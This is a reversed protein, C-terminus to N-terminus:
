TRDDGDPHHYRRGHRYLSRRSTPDIAKEIFRLFMRIDVVVHDDPFVVPVTVLIDVEPRYVFELRIPISTILINGVGALPYRIVGGRLFFRGDRSIVDDPLIVPVPAPIDVKVVARRIFLFPKGVIRAVLPHGNDTPVINGPIIVAAASCVDDEVVDNGPLDLGGDVTVGMDPNGTLSGSGLELGCERLLIDCPDFLTVPPDMIVVDCGALSHPRYGRACRFLGPRREISADYGPLIVPMRAGAGIYIHGIKIVRGSFLDQDGIGIVVLDRRCDAFIDDGPLVLSTCRITDPADVHIVEGSLPLHRDNQGHVLIVFEEVGGDTSVRDDPLSPM